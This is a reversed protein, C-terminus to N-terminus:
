RFTNAQISYKQLLRQFTSRHVGATGAARSVNGGHQELLRSLYEREFGDRAQDLTVTPDISVAVVQQRIRSPLDGLDIADGECLSYASEVANHLERINGPWAYDSLALRARDTFGEIRRVGNDNLRQLFVDSLLTVDGDRERLPPLSVTVVNLRFFLDQRFRGEDMAKELSENGACIVRFDIDITEQSGLRRVSHEQLARLLKAQMDIGLNCIEDLFVTGGHAAEFLGARREHAGTFAGREYGFLESELLQDPLAGCDIPLFPGDARPSNRHLARAVLEKGTGTEGEIVVSAESDALRKILDIIGLMPVSRTVIGEVEIDSGLAQRLRRNEETLRKQAIAREVTILLQDPSFPKPLYDFAGARVADIATSITPHATIMVKHAATDIQELHRLATLGDMEPMKLDLLIVDFSEQRACEIGDAAVAHTTVDYGHHTLAEDCAELMAKEDDIVLIKGSM